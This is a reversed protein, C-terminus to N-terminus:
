NLKVPQGNICIDDYVYEAMEEDTSESGSEESLQSCDAGARFLCDVITNLRRGNALSVATLGGYTRANINLQRQKLLLHLAEIYGLDAAMHLLTRGSKGDQENVDAGRVLLLALINLHGCQLALHACTYGDYNRISLDQSSNQQPYLYTYTMRESPQVPTLLINVMDMMGERCAIHLPTNGCHDPADLAAGAVVLQRAVQPQRTAVALHLPTQHLNNPINIYTSDPALTIIKMSVEPLLHIISMHLHTDGDEDQSFLEELEEHSFSEFSGSKPVCEALGMELRFREQIEEVSFNGSDCIGSDCRSPRVYDKSSESDVLSLERLKQLSASFSDTCLSSRSVPPVPYNEMQKQHVRGQDSSFYDQVREISLASFESSELSFGSDVREDFNIPHKYDDMTTFSPPVRAQQRRLQPVDDTELDGIPLDAM